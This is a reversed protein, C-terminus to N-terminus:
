GLGFLTIRLSHWESGCYYAHAMQATLVRADVGSEGRFTQKLEDSNAVDVFLDSAVDRRFSLHARYIVPAAEDAFYIRYAQRNRGLRVAFNSTAQKFGADMHQNLLGDRSRQGFRVVHDTRCRLTPCEQLDSM